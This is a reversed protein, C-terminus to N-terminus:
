SFSDFSEVAAAAPKTATHLDAAYHTQARFPKQWEEVEGHASPLWVAAKDGSSGTKTKVKLCASCLWPKDDQWRGGLASTYSFTVARGNRRWLPEVPPATSSDGRRGIGFLRPRHHFGYRHPSIVTSRPLLQQAHHSSFM